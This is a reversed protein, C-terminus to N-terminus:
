SRQHLLHRDYIEELCNLMHDLSHCKEVLARGNKTMRVTEQPEEFTRRIAEALMEPQGTTFIRGTENHRVIEPIGGVNSGVVPTECALAQLGIQPIGEHKTSPIVLLSLARLVEPVDERHGVLRVVSRLGLDSIQKEIWTPAQGGGVILYNARFGQALLHAIARLFDSHGKWSRLVSIMGILPMTVEGLDARPGGSSFRELDIGTPLTTIRADSLGFVRQLNATIKASTTLVHDALGAFAIRSLTPNPYDVDIHRTRLILPVSALRAALGLLWGDRSSHTNLVQIRERRLWCILHYLEVPLAVRDFSVSKVQIGAALARQFIQSRSPALLSVAHGRARLGVLEAFTRHEQGGWGM